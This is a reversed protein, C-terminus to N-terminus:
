LKQSRAQALIEGYEVRVFIYVVCVECSLSFSSNSQFLFFLWRTERERRNEITKIVVVAASGGGGARLSLFLLSSDRSNYLSVDDDFIV